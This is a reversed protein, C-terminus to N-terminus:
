TPMCTAGHLARMMSSRRACFLGQLDENIHEAAGPLDPRADAAACAAAWHHARESCPESRAEPPLAAGSRARLVLSYSSWRGCRASARTVFRKTAGHCLTPRFKPLVSGKHPAGGAYRTEHPPLWNRRGPRSPKRDRNM